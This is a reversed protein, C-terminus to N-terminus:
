RSWAYLLLLSATFIVYFYYWPRCITVPTKIMMADDYVGGGRVDDDHNIMVKVFHGPSCIRINCRLSNRDTLYVFLQSDVSSYM